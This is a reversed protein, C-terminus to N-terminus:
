AVERLSYSMDVLCKLNLSKSRNFVAIAERIAVKLNELTGFFYNHIAKAKLHGWYREIRNLEPTYTANWILTIQRKHDALFRM